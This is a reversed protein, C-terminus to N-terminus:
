YKICNQCNYSYIDDMYLYLYTYHLQHHPSTIYMTYINMEFFFRLLLFVSGRNSYFKYTKTFRSLYSILELTFSTFKAFLKKKYKWNYFFETLIYSIYRYRTSTSYVDVELYNLWDVKEHDYFLSQKLMILCIFPNYIKFLLQYLFSCLLPHMIIKNSDFINTLSLSQFCNVYSLKSIKICM